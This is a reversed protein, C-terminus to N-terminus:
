GAPRHIPTCGRAAATVFTMVGPLWRDEFELVASLPGPRPPEYIRRWDAALGSLRIIAPRHQDWCAPLTWPGGTIYDPTLTQEVWRRLTDLQRAHEGPTLNDWRPAPPGKPSAADLTDTVAQTLDTLRTNLDEIRRTLLTIQGRHAAVQTTLQAIAAPDPPSSTM